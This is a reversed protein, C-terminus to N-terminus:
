ETSRVLNVVNEPVDLTDLLKQYDEILGECRGMAMALGNWVVQTAPWERFEDLRPTGSLEGFRHQINDHAQKFARLDGELFRIEAILEERNM